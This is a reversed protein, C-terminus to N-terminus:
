WLLQLSDWALRLILAGLVVLFVIRVFGSGFRIALRAGAYGGVVNALAMLAGLAWWVHGQLGFVLLAGLNTTLNALKAHVSAELFGYGLVAVMLIIFFSGTGPGLVGDYIGVGLGIAGTRLTHARGSWRPAHELGMVPRRLTHVGVVVLAVLVIPAMGARPILGALGAGIASGAAATLVLPLVTALVPRVRRVFTLASISTGAASAVKNTGLVAGTATDAPMGTLLAPLQVLGGGGVVADVWGAVLAATCLFLLLWPSLDGLLALDHM